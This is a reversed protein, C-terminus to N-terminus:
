CAKSKRRRMLFAFGFAGLGLLTISAPEPVPAPTVIQALIRAGTRIQTDTGYNLTVSNATFTLDFPTIGSMNTVSILDFDLFTPIADFSDTLTLINTSGLNITATGNYVWDFLGDDDVNLQFPLGAATFSFEPGAGVVATAPTCTNSFSISCGLTQGTFPGAQAANTLGLAMLLGAGLIIRNLVSFTRM